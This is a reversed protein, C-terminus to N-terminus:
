CRHQRRPPRVPLTVELMKWRTLHLHHILDRAAREIALWTSATAPTHRIDAAPIYHTVDLLLQLKQDNSLSQWHIGNEECSAALEQTHLRRSEETAPCELLFHCRDEPASKCLQCNSSMNANSRNYVLEHTQLRYTGTMLRAKVFANETDRASNTSSSWLFSPYSPDVSAASLYRLSSKDCSDSLVKSRWHEMVAKGVTRKWTPKKPVIDLLQHANPLGYKQLVREVHMFWSTSSVSKTALQRTAIQCELSDPNDIINRFLSLVRKDIEAEIPLIGMLGLVAANACRDPLGQLERLKKRQFTELQAIHKQQLMWLESGYLLRPMVYTSWIKGTTVPNLGNRGHLGASFLAYLTRTAINIRETTRKDNVKVCPSQLLGLHIAEEASPLAAGNLDLDLPASASYWLVASKSTNISRRDRNSHDEIISLMPGLESHIAPALAAVDDACTPLACCVTGITAGLHKQEIELLMDNVDAKFCDPSISGGQITGQRITIPRSLGSAWRVQSTFGDYWDRLVNWFHHPIGLYHLKLFLNQHNVRDFAKEADLFIVCLDEGRESYEQIVETVLMDIPM